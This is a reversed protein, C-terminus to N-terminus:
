KGVSRRDSGPMPWSRPDERRDVKKVLDHVAADIVSFCQQFYRDSRGYPDQLWPHRPRAWLGLLTIQSRMGCHGQAEILQGPEFVIILDTESGQFSTVSTSRHSTLDLRRLAANRVAAPDATSGNTAQFGYSCASAGLSKARASAYPSRCINGKCVFVLREVRSWHIRGADRYAGIRCMLRARLHELYARKGGYLEFDVM